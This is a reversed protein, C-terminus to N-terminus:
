FIGASQSVCFNIVKKVVALWGGSEQFVFGTCLRGMIEDKLKVNINGEWRCTPRGPTKV